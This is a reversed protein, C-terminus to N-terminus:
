KLIHRIYLYTIVRMIFQIREKDSLLGIIKKMNKQNIRASAPNWGDAVLNVIDNMKKPVVNFLVTKKRKHINDGHYTRLIYSYLSEKPTSNM